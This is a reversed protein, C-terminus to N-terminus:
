SQPEKPKPLEVLNNPVPKLFDKLVTNELRLVYNEARFYNLWGVLDQVTTNRGVYIKSPNTCINIQHLPKM